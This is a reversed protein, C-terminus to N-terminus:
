ILILKLSIRVRNISAQQHMDFGLRMATETICKDEQQKSIGLQLELIKIIVPFVSVNRWLAVLWSYTVIEGYDRYQFSLFSDIILIELQVHEIMTKILLKTPAEVTHLSVLHNIAQDMSEVELSHM